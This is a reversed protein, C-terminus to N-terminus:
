ADPPSDQPALDSATVAESDTAEVTLQQLQEVASAVDPEVGSMTYRNEVLLVGVCGDCYVCM